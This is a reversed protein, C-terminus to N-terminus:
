DLLEERWSKMTNVKKVLIILFNHTFFTIDTGSKTCIKQNFISKM